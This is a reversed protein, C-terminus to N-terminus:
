VGDWLWPVNRLVAALDDEGLFKIDPDVNEGGPRRADQVPNPRMRALEFVSQLAGLYNRVSKPAWGRRSGIFAEVDLLTIKALPKDGFFPVSLARLAGKHSALTSAKRAHAELDAVFRRGIAELSAPDPARAPEHEEM